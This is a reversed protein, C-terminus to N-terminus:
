LVGSCRATFTPAGRAPMGAYIDAPAGVGRERITIVQTRLPAGGRATGVIERAGVPRRREFRWIGTGSFSGAQFEFTRGTIRLSMTCSGAESFHTLCTCSYRSPMPPASPADALSATSATALLMGLIIARM